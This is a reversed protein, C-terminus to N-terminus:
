RHAAVPRSGPSGRRSSSCCRRSSGTPSGCCSCGTSGSCCGPSERPGLEARLPPHGGPPVPRKGTGCGTEPPPCFVVRRRGTSTTTARVSRAADRAFKLTPPVFKPKRPWRGTTLLRPRGATHSRATGRVSDADRREGFLKRTWGPWGVPVRPQVAKGGTYFTLM